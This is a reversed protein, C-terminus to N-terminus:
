CGSGSIEKAAKKVAKIIKIYGTCRCLNGSLEERIEDETPTRNRSLLSYASVVFGPTCFGCQVAGEEAFAKQIPHPNRITGIGEVTLIDAGDVQGALILCANATKGNFIVTCAGCEGKGCGEKTGTFGLRDRIIKVLTENAPVTM